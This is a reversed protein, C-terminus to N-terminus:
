KGQALKMSPTFAFREGEAGWFRTATGSASPVPASRDHSAEAPASPWQTSTACDIASRVEMVPVKWFWNAPVDVLKV